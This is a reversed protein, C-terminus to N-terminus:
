PIRRLRTGLLLREVFLLVAAPLLLLPFLESYLMRVRSEIETKELTDITEFVAALGAADTARFYEGGTNVSIEGLLEEDLEVRQMMYRGRGVPVRAEGESGV